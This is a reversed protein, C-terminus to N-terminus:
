LGTEFTRGIAFFVRNSEASTPDEIRSRFGYGIDATVTETLDYSYTLTVSSRTIDPEDEDELNVENAVALDVGFRSVTNLDRVVGLGVGAVRVETEGNDQTTYRNFIRGNISGRALAYNGRVSFSFRTQPAATTLRGDGQLRFDDRIYFFDGRLTAGSNNDTTRREGGITEEKRRDAYGIGGRVRVNEDPQYVIGADVEAVRLTTDNVNDADYYFYGAAVITSFVPTFRLSWTGDVQASRRPTLTPVDESYDIATGVFRLGYTSPDSTGYEFGIDADFRLERAQDEVDDLNDPLAGEDDIFEDIDRLFDTRRQRYRLLADFTSNAGEQAYDLRAGTPSALTFEFPEEAQWLARLGTNLGLALQQTPTERLYGLDLRTDGYYTTGPSPDDLDYNSDAVASQSITATLTPSQVVADQAAAPHIGAAGALTLAALAARRM